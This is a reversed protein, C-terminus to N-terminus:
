ASKLCFGGDVLLNLGSLYRSEDSVLNLAVEAVDKSKLVVGKLNGMTSFMEEFAKEDLGMSEETLPTAVAFPSICNVRIGFGGLEVCLNKVLGVVAHKSATYVHPVMGYNATVASGTLLITGGKQPVMVRVAHKAALFSGYVNVDFVKRFVEPDVSLIGVKKKELTDLKEGAIGANNYMIDLKGHMSVATDVANQMDSDNVVDCQVYSVPYGSELQIQESVSRGLDSRIDAIVVKAGHQSFLRAAAAGIGRAGGTILAVKGQLRRAM